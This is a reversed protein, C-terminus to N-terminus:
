LEKFTGFLWCSPARESSPELMKQDEQQRIVGFRVLVHNACAHVFEARGRVLKFQLRNLPFWVFSFIFEMRLQQGTADGLKREPGHVLARCELKRSRVAICKQSITRGWARALRRHRAFFDNAIQTQFNRILSEINQFDYAATWIMEGRLVNKFSDGFAAGFDTKRRHIPKQAREGVSRKDGFDSQASHGRTVFPGRFIVVIM